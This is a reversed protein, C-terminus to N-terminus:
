TLLALLRPDRDAFRRPRAPKIPEKISGDRHWGILLSIPQQGDRRGQSGILQQEDSEDAGLRDGLEKLELEVRDGGVLGLNGEVLKQALLDRRVDIRRPAIVPVDAPDAAPGALPPPVRGEGVILKLNDRLEPEQRALGLAPDELLLRDLLDQGLHELTEGHLDLEGALVLGTVIAHLVAFRIEVEGAAQHFFLANEVEELVLGATVGHDNRVVGASVGINGEAALGGVGWQVDGVHDLFPDGGPLFALVQSRHLHGEPVVAELQGVLVQLDLLLNLVANLDPLDRVLQFDAARVPQFQVVPWAAVRLPEVTHVGAAPVTGGVDLLNELVILARGLNTDLLLSRPAEHDAAAAPEALERGPM